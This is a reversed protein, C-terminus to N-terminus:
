ERQRDSLGEEAVMDSVVRIQSVLSSVARSFDM